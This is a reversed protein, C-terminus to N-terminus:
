IVFDSSPDTKAPRDGKLRLAARGANCVIV